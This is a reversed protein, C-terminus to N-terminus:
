QKESFDEFSHEEGDGDVVKDDNGDVADVALVPSVGTGIGVGDVQGTQGVLLQEFGIVVVEGRVGPIHLLISLLVRNNSKSAAVSDIKMPGPWDLTGDSIKVQGEKDGELQM